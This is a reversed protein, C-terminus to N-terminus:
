ISRFGLRQWDVMHPAATNYTMTMTSRTALVGLQSFCCVESPFAASCRAYTTAESAVNSPEPSRPKTKITLCAEVEPFTSDLGGASM